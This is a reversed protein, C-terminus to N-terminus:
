GPNVRFRAGQKMNRHLMAKRIPWMQAMFDPILVVEAQVQDQGFGDNLRGRLTKQAPEVSIGPPADQGQRVPSSVKTKTQVSGRQRAHGPQQRM